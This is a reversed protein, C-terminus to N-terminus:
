NDGLPSQKITSAIGELYGQLLTLHAELEKYTPKGELLAQTKYAMYNLAAGIMALREESSVSMDM